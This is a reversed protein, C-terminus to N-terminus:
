TTTSVKWKKSLSSLKDEMSLPPATRPTSKPKRETNEQLAKISLSIRKTKTDATLVKVKVIQGAKLVESPEKIFRNSIESIHVLGDQHVGIDVFAGFKAVNTVVGELVMGPNLDDIERVAEHFSPAVFTDRPDRGPKRLENLIDELTYSGASFDSKNLKNLLQPNRILESIPTGLSNAIQEVLPYSEPHVATSDLLQGGNRIRLFGAAQEFTKPGIGPVEHLETRTNFRGHTDRYAVINLAIRESIGAVYRLLAWSATNLDVGVRNVCSEITAELSQQLQRQDVDHQYQGVGISKPDIKVLESLPDQLRRAISIAGRVTLDLDPFEQRALESASYVSAGAESVTVRFIDSLTHESLFDRVFTDTERSATGNGIAIARVNHGQMLAALKQSAERERGTHPYIVDHALFKGTEDVIAIKCGTRLGPDIGLVGIPGAPAALLLNQLNDRFVQIADTDSRRKLELRLEGQISSNLLRKWCDEVALNLHATWDGNHRLVRSCILSLVRQEDLEMLWYLVNESEGRRVALMRHSPITKAPERYDYYMKFKEQEDKADFCKRSVIVGEEFMLHRVTKRVEADESILEAVIYRAGQLADEVSAVEKAPDILSQALTILDTETREQNWMYLALPELGQERAITAKTRRKPKYPLYLDELESRDLTQLIRTKLEDTLKGQEAISGLISERRSLLDRFYLIKQEIDRIQVEDLNGTAEKRYRAIFPVTSGEDLLGMVSRIGALPLNLTTSIHLLIQPDLSIVDAM